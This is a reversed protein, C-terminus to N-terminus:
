KFATGLSEELARNSGLEQQGQRTEKMYSVLLLQTKLQLSNLFSLMLHDSHPGKSKDRICTCHTLWCYWKCVNQHFQLLLFVELNCIFHAPKM